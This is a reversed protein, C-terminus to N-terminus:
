QNRNSDQNRNKSKNKKRQTYSTMDGNFFVDGYNNNIIVDDIFERVNRKKNDRITNDDLKFFSMHVPTKEYVLASGIIYKSEYRYDEGLGIAKFHNENCQKIEEIFYKARDISVVPQKQNSNSGMEEKRVSDLRIAEMCYSRLIKKHLYKYAQPRSVLDFGAVKGDLFVFIGCQEEELPFNNIYENLKQDYTKYVDKMAGTNSKVKLDKSLLDVEDWIQGQDSYYIRNKKLNEKLIASHVVRTKYNLVNESSTFEKSVYNWRGQEVCSVPIKLESKKDILVTTNLIRNQKAGIVEEGDIILILNDSINRAILEPVHGHEDVETIKLWGSSIAEDLTVYLLGSQKELFMPLVAISNFERVNKFKIADIFEIINKNM